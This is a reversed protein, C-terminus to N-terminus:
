KVLRRIIDDALPFGSRTLKISDGEPDILGSEVLTDFTDRDIVEDVPIGFRQLFNQRGIGKSTRLGLMITENIRSQRDNIDFIVPREFQSLKEMYTAVNSTNAFRKGDIFSHASPGLGLFDGGEWYCLNHRCEYGPRAFSSIEYHNYDHSELESSIAQYMAASLDSDPLKIDGKDIRHALPTDKEVTLQYYSLHPPALELLQTLDEGLTKTTQWPLGFIMDIGFNDFGIARAQFIARFSDKPNHNRNLERLSRLNFSQIGFIPRNVGLEKFFLLKDSDSSEPNIELSFEPKGSFGFASKIQDVLNKLSGPILM